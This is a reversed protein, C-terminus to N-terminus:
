SPRVSLQLGGPLDTGSDGGPTTWQPFHVGRRPSGSRPPGARVLADLDELMEHVWRVMTAAVRRERRTMEPSRSREEVLAFWEFVREMLPESLRYREPDQLARAFESHLALYRDRVVVFADSLSDMRRELM